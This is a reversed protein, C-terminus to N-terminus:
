APAGLTVPVNDILRTTGARGAVLLRAAGVAPSPGLDAATLALYDLALSPEAALEARAAALV